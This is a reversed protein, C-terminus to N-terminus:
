PRIVMSDIISQAAARDADPTGAYDAEVIILRTGAV